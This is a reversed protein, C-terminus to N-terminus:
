YVFEEGISIALNILLPDESLKALNAYNYIVKRMREKAMGDLQNVSQNIITMNSKLLEGFSYLVPIFNNSNRENLITLSRTLFYNMETDTINDHNILDLILDVTDNLKILLNPEVSAINRSQYGDLFGAFSSTRM